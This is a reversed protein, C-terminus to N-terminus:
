AGRDNPDRRDNRPRRRLEGAYLCALQGPATRELPEDCSARRRARTARRRARRRVRCPVAGAASACSSARRGRRRRHLTVRRVGRTGTLLRERPGVTVTNRAADTRLVYLPQRRRAAPRPAARRHLAHAGRHEGLVGGAADVIPAPRAASRRRPARPVRAARARRPLLPGPLRAQRRRRPRGRPRARAGRPKHLEGLPFRLRALSAPAPRRARLEPGQRPRGRRAAAAAAPHRARRARLPRHRADAAGLREALELM